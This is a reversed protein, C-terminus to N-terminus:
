IVARLALGLATVYSLSRNYILDKLENQPAPLINIWPNAIVTPVRFKEQLKEPLIKLNSGGGCLIIKYFKDTNNLHHHVYSSKYFNVYDEIKSVLENIPEDLIKFIEDHGEKKMKEAEEFSIKLKAAVIDTFRKGSILISTAFRITNGCHIIIDTHNAGFDLILTTKKSFSNKLVCRSIAFSEPEIAVPVLGVKRVATLYQDIIKKPAASILVDFHEGEKDSFSAVLKWDFYIEDIKFPINAEIQWIIAEKLENESMKPFSIIKTYTQSEPLSIIVNKSSIRHYKANKMLKNIFDGLKDSDSIFDDQIVGAPVEEEAYSYVALRGLFNKRLEIARLSFQSIDLGFAPKKIKFLDVFRIM